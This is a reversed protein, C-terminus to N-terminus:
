KLSQIGTIHMTRCKIIPRCLEGFRDNQPFRFLNMDRTHRSLTWSFGRLIACLRRRKQFSARWSRCSTCRPAVRAVELVHTVNASQKAERAKSWVKLADDYLAELESATVYFSPLRSPTPAPPCSASHSKLERGRIKNFRTHVHNRALRPLIPLFGHVM